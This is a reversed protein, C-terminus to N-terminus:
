HGGAAEQPEEDEEFWDQNVPETEGSTAQGEVEVAQKEYAEMDNTLNTEEPSKPAKPLTFKQVHGESDSAKQPAPKYARVEKLYM